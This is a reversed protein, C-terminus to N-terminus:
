SDMSRAFGLVERVATDSVDPMAEGFMLRGVQCIGLVVGAVSPVGAQLLLRHYAIGEDRLPDLEACSIM